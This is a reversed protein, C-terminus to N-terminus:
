IGAARFWRYEGSATQLRYNVDYKTQNTKDAITDGFAALTAEKDEPHLRDTWANLTDPFDSTGHFGTMRRFDDSWVVREIEGKADFYM